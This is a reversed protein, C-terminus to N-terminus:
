ATNLLVAVKLKIYENLVVRLGEENKWWTKRSYAEKTDSNARIIKVEDTLYKSFFAWGRRQVFPSNVLILREYSVNKEDLLNLSRRVNDALTIAGAELILAEQPIGAKLAIKAYREAESIREHEKYIPNSGSIMLRPALGEKYLGIAKEIRLTTMAGFVFILDSRELPDEQALYAYVDDLCRQQVTNPASDLIRRVAEDLLAGGQELIGARVVEDPLVELKFFDNPFGYAFLLNTITTFEAFHIEEKGKPLPRSAEKQMIRALEESQPLQSFHTRKM